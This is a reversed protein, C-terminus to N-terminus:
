NAIFISQGPQRSALVTKASELIAPLNSQATLVPDVLHTWAGQKVRGKPSPAFAPITGLAPAGVTLQWNSLATGVDVPTTQILDNLISLSADDAVQKAFVGIRKSLTEMENALDLLTAM